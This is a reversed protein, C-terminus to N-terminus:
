PAEKRFCSSPASSHNVEKGDMTAASMKSTQHVPMSESSISFGTGAMNQAFRVQLEAATTRQGPKGVESWPKPDFNFTDIFNMSGSFSWSKDKGVTLEGVLHITFTGLTGM